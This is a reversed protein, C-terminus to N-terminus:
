DNFHKIGLEILHRVTETKSMGTQAVIAKISERINEPIYGVSVGPRDIDTEPHHRTNKLSCGERFFKAIWHRERCFRDEPTTEELIRAKYEIGSASLEDLFVKVKKSSNYSYSKATRAEVNHAVGVYFCSDDRSDFLGYVYYKAYYKRKSPM